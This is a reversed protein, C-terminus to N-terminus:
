DDTAEVPQSDLLAGKPPEGNMKIEDEIRNFFHYELFHHSTVPELHIWKKYKVYWKMQISPFGKTLYAYIFPHLTIRIYSENQETLLQRINGEIEDM